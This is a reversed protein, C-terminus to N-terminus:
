LTPNVALWLRDEGKQDHMKLRTTGQRAFLSLESGTPNVELSAFDVNEKGAIHPKGIYLGLASNLTQGLTIEQTGEEDYFSIGSGSYQVDLSVRKVGDLDYFELAPSVMRPAQMYLRARMRGDGDKLVFENAEVTRHSPVQGMLLVAAALILAVAGAQKLRRNQRELKELREVVATWNPTPSSM